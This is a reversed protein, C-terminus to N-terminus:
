QMLLKDMKAEYDRAEEEPIQQMLRSSEVENVPPQTTNTPGPDDLGHRAVNMITSDSASYVDSNNILPKVKIVHSGDLQLDSYKMADSSTVEM